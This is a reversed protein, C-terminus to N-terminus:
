KKKRKRKKGKERKGKEGRRKKKREKERLEVEAFRVEFSWELVAGLIYVFDFCVGPAFRRVRWWQDARPALAGSAGDEGKALQICQREAESRAARLHRTDKGDRGRRARWTKSAGWKSRKQQREGAWCASWRLTPRFRYRQRQWRRVKRQYHQQLPPRHVVHLMRHFKSTGVVNTGYLQRAGELASRCTKELEQLAEVSCDRELAEEAGLVLQIERLNEAHAVQSKKVVGELAWVSYAFLTRKTEASIKLLQAPPEGLETGIKRAVCERQKKSLWSRTAATGRRRQGFLISLLKTAVGGSGFMVHLLDMPFLLGLDCDEASPVAGCQEFTQLLLRLKPGAEPCRVEFERLSRVFPEQPPASAARLEAAPTSCMWCKSYAQGGVSLGLLEHQGKQDLMLQGLRAHVAAVEGTAADRVQFCPGSSWARAIVRGFLRPMGVVGIAERPLAALKVWAPGKERFWLPFEGLTAYVQTAGSTVARSGFLSADDVFLDVCATRDARCLYRSRLAPQASRLAYASTAIDPVWTDACARVSRTRRESALLAAIGPTGYWLQLAEELPLVPVVQLVGSTLVSVSRTSYDLRPVVEFLLRRLRRMSRLEPLGTLEEISRLVLHEFRERNPRDVFAFELIRREVNTLEAWAQRQADHAAVGAGGDVARRAARQEPGAEAARQGVEAARTQGRLAANEAELAAYRKEEKRKRGKEKKGKGKEEKREKKEKKKKELAAYRIKLIGLEARLAREPGYDM